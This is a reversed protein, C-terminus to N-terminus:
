FLTCLEDPEWIGSFFSVLLIVCHSIHYTIMLIPLELCPVRSLRVHTASALFFYDGQQILQFQCKYQLRTLLSMRPSILVYKWFSKLRNLWLILFMWVFLLWFKNLMNKWFYTMVAFVVSFFTKVKLHGAEEILVNIRFPPKFEQTM